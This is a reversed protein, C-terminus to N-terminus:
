ADAVEMNCVPCNKKEKLWRKICNFHFTHACLLSALKDRNAYQSCCIVCEDKSKKKWISFWSKYKFTPLRSIIDDSLGKSEHGLADGLSQLEEYSMNDLDIADGATNSIEARVPPERHQSGSAGALTHIDDFGDGMELSRALAEDLALQSAREQVTFPNSRSTEGHESSTSQTKGHKQFALYLSEQQIRIEELSLGGDEPFCKILDEAFEPQLVSSLHHDHWENNSM